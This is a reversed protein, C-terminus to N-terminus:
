AFSSTKRLAQSEASRCSTSCAIGAQSAMILVDYTYNEVPLGSYDSLECLRPHTHSRHLMGASRSENKVILTCWCSTFLGNKGYMDPVSRPCSRVVASLAYEPLIRGLSYWLHVSFATRCRYRGSEGLHSGTRHGTSRSGEVPLRINEQSKWTALVSCWGNGRMNRGALCLM